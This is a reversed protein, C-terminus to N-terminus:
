VRFVWFNEVFTNYNYKHAVVLKQAITTVAFFSINSSRKSNKFSKPILVKFTHKQYTQQKYPAVFEM